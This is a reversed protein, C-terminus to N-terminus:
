PMPLLMWFDDSVSRISRVPRIDRRDDGHHFCRERGPALAQAFGGVAIDPKAELFQALFAVL